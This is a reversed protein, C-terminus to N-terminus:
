SLEEECSKCIAKRHGKSNIVPFQHYSKRLGCLACVKYDGAKRIRIPTFNYPHYLKERQYETLM